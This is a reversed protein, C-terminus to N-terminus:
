CFFFSDNIPIKLAYIQTCNTKQKKNKNWKPISFHKRHMAYKVYPLHYIALIHYVVIIYKMMYTVNDTNDTFDHGGSRRLESNRQKTRPRPTSQKTNLDHGSVSILWGVTDVVCFVPENLPSKEHLQSSYSNCLCNDLEM